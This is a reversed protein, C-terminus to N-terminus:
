TLPLGQRVVLKSTETANPRLNILRGTELIQGRLRLLGHFDSQLHNKLTVTFELPKQSTAPTIVYPSPDVDVIEVAPAVDKRTDTEVHFTVGEISLEAEAKLPEGFLHGDYLHEPSRVTLPLRKPFNVKVEA